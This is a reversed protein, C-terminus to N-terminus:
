LLYNLSAPWCCATHYPVSTTELYVKLHATQQRVVFGADILMAAPLDTAPLAMM